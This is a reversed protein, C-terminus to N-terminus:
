IKKKQKLEKWKLKLLFNFDLFFVCTDDINNETYLFVLRIIDEKRRESVHRYTNSLVIQAKAACEEQGVVAIEVLEELVAEIVNDELKGDIM